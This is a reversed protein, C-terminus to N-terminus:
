IGPACLQSWQPVGTITGCYSTFLHSLFTARPWHPEASLLTAVLEGTLPYLRQREWFLGSFSAKYGFSASSCVATTLPLSAIEFGRCALMEWAKSSKKSVPELKIYLSSPVAYQACNRQARRGAEWMLCRPNLLLSLALPAHLFSGHIRFRLARSHIGPIASISRGAAIWVVTERKSKIRLSSKRLIERM